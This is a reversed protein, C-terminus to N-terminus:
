LIERVSSGEMWLSGVPGARHIVVVIELNQESGYAQHPAVHSLISMHCSVSCMQRLVQLSWWGFRGITSKLHPDSVQQLENVTWATTSASTDLLVHRKNQSQPAMSLVLCRLKEKPTWRVRANREPKQCREM